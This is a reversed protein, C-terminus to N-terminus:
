SVCNELLDLLLDVFGPLDQQIPQPTVAGHHAQSRRGVDQAM